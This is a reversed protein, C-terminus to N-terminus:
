EMWTADSTVVTFSVLRGAGITNLKEYKVSIRGTGSGRWRSVESM